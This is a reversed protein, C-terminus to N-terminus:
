SRKAVRYHRDDGLTVKGARLLANVSAYLSAQGMPRGDFLEQHQSAILDPLTMQGRTRLWALILEMHKEDSASTAPPAYRGASRHIAM